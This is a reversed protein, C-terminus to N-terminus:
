WVQQGGYWLGLAYSLFMVLQFCGLSAGMSRGSKIAVAEALKVENGYRELASSEGNFSSVTRMAGIIEDAIGGATAYHEQGKGTMQGVVKMIVAGMIALAPVVALIVLALRWGQYFGIIFGSLFLALFQWFQGAKESIGEQIVVADGNIRSSLKGPITTDFWAIEQRLVAKLYAEKLRRIQRESSIQFCYTQGWGSIGGIAGLGVFYLAYKTIGKDFEEGTENFVNIMSGFVFSMLPQTSGFVLALFIGVGVLVRDYTDAFRYLAWFGVANAALSTDGGNAPSGESSADEIIVIEPQPDESDVLPARLTGSM